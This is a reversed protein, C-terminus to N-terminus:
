GLFCVGSSPVASVKKTHFDFATDIDLLKHSNKEWEAAQTWQAHFYKPVIGSPNRPDPKSEELVRLMEQSLMITTAEAGASLFCCQIGHILPPIDLYINTM